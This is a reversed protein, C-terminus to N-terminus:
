HVHAQALEPLCNLVPFGPMSCDMPDYLTTYLQAVSCCCSNILELWRAQLTSDQFTILVRFKFFFVFGSGRSFKREPKSGGVERQAGREGMAIPKWTLRKVHAKPDWHAKLPKSPGHFCSQFSGPGQRLSSDAGFVGMQSDRSKYTSIDSSPLLSLLPLQFFYSAAWSESFQNQPLLTFNIGALSFFARNEGPYLGRPIKCWSASPFGSQLSIQM